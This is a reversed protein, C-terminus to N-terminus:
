KRSSKENQDAKATSTFIHIFYLTSNHTYIFQKTPLSHTQKTSQVCKNTSTYTYHTLSNHYIGYVKEPTIAINKTNNETNDETKLCNYRQKKKDSKAFHAPCMKWQYPSGYFAIYPWCKECLEMINTSMQTEDRQWNKKRSKIKYERLMLVFSHENGTM